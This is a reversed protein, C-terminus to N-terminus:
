NFNVYQQYRMIDKVNDYGAPTSIVFNESSDKLCTGFFDPMDSM